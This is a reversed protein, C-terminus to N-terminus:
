PPVRGVGVVGRLRGDGHRGLLGCKADFAVVSVEDV